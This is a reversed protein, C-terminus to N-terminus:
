GTYPTEDAKKIIMDKYLEPQLHARRAANCWYCICGQLGCVPGKGSPQEARLAALEASAQALERELTRAFTALVVESIPSNNEKWSLEDTRPTPTESM